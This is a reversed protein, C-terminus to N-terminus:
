PEAGVSQGMLLASLCGRLSAIFNKGELGSTPAEHPGQSIHGVHLGLQIIVAAACTWTHMGIVDCAPSPDIFYKHDTREGHVGSATCIFHLYVCGIVIFHLSWFVPRPPTSLPTCQKKWRPRQSSRGTAAAAMVRIVRCIGSRRPVTRGSQGKHLDSV